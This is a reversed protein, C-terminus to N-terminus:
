TISPTKLSRIRRAMEGNSITGGCDCSFAHLEAQNLEFFRMAERASARSLGAATFIPDAAALSFANAGARGTVGPDALDCDLLWGAWREMNSFLAVPHPHSEVLSAWRELRDNRSMPIPVSLATLEAQDMHRM